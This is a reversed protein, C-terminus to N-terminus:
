VPVEMRGQKEGLLNSSCTHLTTHPDFTPRGERRSDGRGSLSDALIRYRQILISVYFHPGMGVRSAISRLSSSCSRPFCTEPYEELSQEEELSM